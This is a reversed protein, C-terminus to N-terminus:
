IVRTTQKCIETSSNTKVLDMNEVIEKAFNIIDVNSFNNKVLEKYMSKALLKIAKENSVNNTILKLHKM